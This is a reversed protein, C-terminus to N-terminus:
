KFNKKIMVWLAVIGIQIAVVSLVLAVISVWMETSAPITKVIVPSATTASVANSVASEGASNVATVLYYSSAGLELGGDHFATQDASINAIVDMDDSSDGRYVLYYSINGGDDLPMKWALDVYDEGVVCELDVPASPVTDAAVVISPVITFALLIIAAFTFLTGITKM